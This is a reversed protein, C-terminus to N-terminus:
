CSGNNINWEVVKEFNLINGLAVKSAHALGKNQFTRKMLTRNVHIGQKALTLNICAYGIKM